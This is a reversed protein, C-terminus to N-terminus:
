SLHILNYEKVRDNIKRGLEPLALWVTTILTM